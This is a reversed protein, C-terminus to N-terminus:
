NHNNVRKVLDEFLIEAALQNGAKNWHTNRLLYLQQKKGEARFRDLFDMFPIAKSALFSKLLNQALELDFDAPRLRFKEIITKLLAENVQFEDPYIAM